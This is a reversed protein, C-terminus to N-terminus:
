VKTFFTATSLYSGNLAVGFVHYFRLQKVRDHIKLVEISDLYVQGIHGRPSLNLILQAMKNQMIQLKRQHSM